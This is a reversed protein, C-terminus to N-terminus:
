GGRDNGTDELIKISQLDGEMKHTVWELEGDRNMM